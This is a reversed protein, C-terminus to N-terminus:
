PLGAGVIAPLGLRRAEANFRAVEEELVRHVRPRVENWQADLDAKRRVRGETPRGEASGAGYGGDGVLTGYLTGYQSALGAPAALEGAPRAPVLLARAEATRAALTDALARLGGADVGTSDAQRVIVKAQAAVTDLAALRTRVQDLTDRVAVSLAHQAEYDAQTISPDRPDGTVALPRSLTDGGAAIRVRYAGPPMKVGAGGGRGEGTGSLPRPGAGRLDWVVRHFGRTAPIRRTGLGASRASDSHFARVTQGRADLIDIALEPVDATLTYHILAGHPLDDPQALDVENLPPGGVGRAAPRPTYLRVTGARPDAALERLPTLDDLVWFSRGQTALVLDGRHVKMDMVPTAPLNLQLPQWRAGGNFSVFLGFETGAYLLGPRAPDERVVRVPHDAPIGNTGDALRRWTRGWDDTAFVYPAFDDMRYRHVSVIARGPAHPSAEIRNVTGLRPLDPPTIETWTGGGDRTLHVRGDDTGVWLTQPDHPSPAVAFITTFVEVGSHDPTIPGGPWRQLSTDNTTLDPSIREWRDGGDRSRYLYQSAYYLTRPAHPSVVVPAIWQWRNAMERPAVSTNEPYVSVSVRTDSRLDLRNLNGGYCGGWITEPHDPHLAVPGTECGAAFVWEQQPRLSNELRRSPVGISTNDQQSGYLRYPVQNDVTVDYLEATPQNYMSSFTRGGNLTVVTGGDDSVAFIEPHQPNIWIDHVDGHPVPVPTFTRGGDTSRLLAQTMVYVTNSDAPDARVHTYYFPRARVRAEDNVRTWSDGGDDSRFLGGSDAEVLAWVRRPNAPSVTVGVKGVMGRPLGGELRTWTDGGDRTRYVGGEPGGSIMTWPKREARWMGAFLEDPNAPNMSLSVAGTSDNLFLVHEWTAGGDRSRYIGREPNRGFPHGLATVYVRDPDSPHVAIKGIAGSERLGLFTWSKGGDTSKWVGRGVSSNGRISASGTGVYIVRPDSDAVDIAGINGVDLFRDTLPTWHGGADDTKWVGGGTTGMYFVHPQEAVGAVATARGGRFPGVMRMRMGGYLASDVEPSAVRQAHLADPAALLLLLALCTRIM